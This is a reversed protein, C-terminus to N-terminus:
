IIIFLFNCFINELGNEGGKFIMDKRDLRLDGKIKEPGHCKYCNHALIARVQVNLEVSQQKTLQATDNKFQTLDFNSKAATVYDTSWPLTASIYDKGHTLSAGFHGAVAVGLASMWLVSRYFKILQFQEKVLIWNLLLWAVSGLCATAIGVWQHINSLDKEYGGEKVILLGAIASFIAAFTGAVILLKIGARLSSNFKKVTFIELIGALLLLTIPFHVILPHLRGFFRWLWFSEVLKTSSSNAFGNFSFQLLCILLIAIVVFVLKKNPVINKKFDKM